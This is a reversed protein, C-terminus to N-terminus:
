GFERVLARLKSWQSRSLGFSRTAYAGGDKSKSTDVLVIIARGNRTFVKVDDGEHFVDLGLWRPAAQEAEAVIDRPQQHGQGEQEEEEDLLGEAEELQTKGTFLGITRLAAPDKKRSAM